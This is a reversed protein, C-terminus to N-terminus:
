IYRSFHWKFHFTVYMIDLATYMVLASAVGYTDCTLYASYM